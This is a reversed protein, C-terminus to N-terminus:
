QPYRNHRIARYDQWTHRCSLGGCALAAFGCLIGLTLAAAFAHTHACLYAGISMLLAAALVMAATGYLEGFAFACTRPGVLSYYPIRVLLPTVALAAAVGAMGYHPCLLSSFAFMLAVELLLVLSVLKAKGAIIFLTGLHEGWAMVIFGLVFWLSTWDGAYYDPRSLLSVAYRNAMLAVVLGIGTMWLSLATALRYFRLFRERQATVYLNQLKPYFAHYSRLALIAVVQPVRFTVMYLSVQELGLTRGLVVSPISGVIAPAVSWLMISISYGLIPKATQWSSFSPRYRLRHPGQRLLRRLWIFQVWNGGLAAFVYSRLGWGLYFMVLFGALNIWPICGNIILTWHYREQCLLAGTYARAPFTMAHMLALGVWIFRADDGLSPSIRFYDVLWFSMVYGSGAILLGQVALISLITSWARDIGEQRNGALPEALMRGAAAGVGLELFLLYGALQSILSWLGIREKDLFHVAVPLSVLGCVTMSAFCFYGGALNLLPGSQLVRRFQSRLYFV